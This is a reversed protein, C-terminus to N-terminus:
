ISILNFKFSIRYSNLLTNEKIEFFNSPHGNNIQDFTKLLVYSGTGGKNKIFVKSGASRLLLHERSIIQMMKGDIPLQPEDIVHHPNKKNERGIHDYGGNLALIVYLKTNFLYESSVITLQVICENEKIKISNVHLLLVLGLRIVNGEVIETDEEDSIKIALRGDLSIDSVYYGTSSCIIIFHSRSFSRYNHDIYIDSTFCNDAFRGVIVVRDDNYRSSGKFGTNDIIHGGEQIYVTGPFVKPQTIIMHLRAKCLFSKSLDEIQHEFAYCMSNIKHTLVVSSINIFVTYLVKQILLEPDLSSAGFCNLVTQMAELPPALSPNINLTNLLIKIAAKSKITAYSYERRDFVEGMGTNRVRELFLEYPIEGLSINSLILRKIYFSSKYGYLDLFDLMNEYAVEWSVTNSQLFYKKHIAYTFIKLLKINFNAEKINLCHNIDEESLKLPILYYRFFLPQAQAAKLKARVIDRSNLAQLLEELVFKLNDRMGLPDEIYEIRWIESALAEIPKVESNNPWCGIISNLTNFIEM